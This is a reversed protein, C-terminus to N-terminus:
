AGGGQAPQALYRKSTIIDYSVECSRESLVALGEKLRAPQVQQDIYRMFLDRDRFQEEATKPEVEAAANAPTTALAATIRDRGNTGISNSWGLIDLNDYTEKLAGDKVAIAAQLSSVQATLASESPTIQRPHPGFQVIVNKIRQAALLKYEESSDGSYLRNWEYTARDIWDYFHAEDPGAVDPAELMDRLVIARYREDALASEAAALKARLDPADDSEPVYLPIGDGFFIRRGERLRIDLQRDSEKLEDLEKMLAAQEERLRAVLATSAQLEDFLKVYRDAREVSHTKAAKLEREITRAFAIWQGDHAVHPTELMVNVRPTDDNNM